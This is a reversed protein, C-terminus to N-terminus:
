ELYFDHQNGQMAFMLAIKYEIEKCLRSNNM